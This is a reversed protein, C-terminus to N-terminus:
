FKNMIGSYTEIIQSSIDEPEPEKVKEDIKSVKNLKETLRKHIETEEPTLGTYIPAGSVDKVEPKSSKVNPKFIYMDSQDNLLYSLILNIIISMFLSTLINRTGVFFIVFILIRRFWPHQFFKDQEPTLGTALHRGGLNLLMMMSGIFYPNSNLSNISNEIPNLSLTLNTAPLFSM